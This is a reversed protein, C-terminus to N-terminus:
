NSRTAAVNIETNFNISKISTAKGKSVAQPEKSSTRNTWWSPSISSGRFGRDDAEAAQLGWWTREERDM